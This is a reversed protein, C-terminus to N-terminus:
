EAAEKKLFHLYDVDDRWQQAKIKYDRRNTSEFAKLWKLFISTAYEIADDINDFKRDKVTIM